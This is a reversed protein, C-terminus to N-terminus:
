GLSKSDQGNAHLLASLSSIFSHVYEEIRLGNIADEFSELLPSELVIGLAHQVSAHQLIDPSLWDLLRFPITELPGASSSYTTVFVEDVYLYDSDAVVYKVRQTRNQVTVIKATHQCAHLPTTLDVRLTRLESKSAVPSICVVDGEKLEDAFM